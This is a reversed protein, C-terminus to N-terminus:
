ELPRRVAGSFEANPTKMAEADGWMQGTKWPGINAGHFFYHAPIPQNGRLPKAELLAASYSCLLKGDQWCERAMTDPNDYTCVAM